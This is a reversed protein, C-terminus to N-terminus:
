EIPPQPFTAQTGLYAHSPSNMADLRIHRMAPVLVGEDRKLQQESNESNMLLLPYLAVM